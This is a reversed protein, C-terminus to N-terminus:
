KYRCFLFRDHGAWDRELRADQWRPGSFLAHVAEGQGAGLELFVQAGSRLYHPLEEALRRFFYLGDPGAVLAERPEFDRVSRDLAAFEQESVYPPNVLVVDASKGKFPLLFDGSYCTIEVGNAAANERAVALAEESIDSLTVDLEPRAKKLAIGLAGSGCCLDWAVRAEREIQACVHTLLIETEPRPILVGPRVSLTCGYFSVKGFIYAPPEHTGARKLLPRLQALEREVIPKDYQLYLDMRGCGLLHAILEECVRRPHSVGREQLWETSKQLVEILNM